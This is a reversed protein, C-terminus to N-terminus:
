GANSEARVSLDLLEGDPGRLWSLGAADRFRLVVARNDPGSKRKRADDSGPMLVPVLREGGSSDAIESLLSSGDDWLLEASYIPRDSANRVHATIMDGGPSSVARQMQGVGSDPGTETWIFVKSAQASRREALSARIEAAQLALVRMQEASAARQQDVQERYVELRESQLRLMDAQDRVEKSQKRFALFAFGATIIAFLALVATGVATLQTAFILSM